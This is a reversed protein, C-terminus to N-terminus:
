EDANFVEVLQTVFFTAKAENINNKLLDTRLMNGYAVIYTVIYDILYYFLVGEPLQIYCDGFPIFILFLFTDNMTNYISRIHQHISKKSLM